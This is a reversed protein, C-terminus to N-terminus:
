HSSALQRSYLVASPLQVTLVNIKASSHWCWWIVPAVNTWGNGWIRKTELFQAHVTLDDVSVAVNATAPHDSAIMLQQM